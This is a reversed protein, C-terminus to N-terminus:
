EKLGEERMKEVLHRIDKYVAMVRNQEDQTLDAQVTIKEDEKDGIYFARGYWISRIRPM